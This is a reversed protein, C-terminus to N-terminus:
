IATLGGDADKCGRNCAVSISAEIMGRRATILSKVRGELESIELIRGHFREDVAAVLEESGLCRSGTGSM